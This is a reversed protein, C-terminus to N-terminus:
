AGLSCALNTNHCTKNSVALRLALLFLMQFWTVGQFPTFKDQSHGGSLLGLFTFGSDSASFGSLFSDRLCADMQHVRADPSGNRGSEVSGLHIFCAAAM